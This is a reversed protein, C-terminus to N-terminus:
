KEVNQPNKSYYQTFNKRNKGQIYEGATIPPYKELGEPFGLESPDIVADPDPDLFVVLSHRENGSTNIVRHFNSSLSENSWRNLLDGINCVITGEVPLAAVWEGARNKVQLGGNHDQLLLTLVGFDTHPSSGFRLENEDSASSVPYYVLQGRALPSTYRSEFFDRDVGLGIAIASLLLQGVVRAADYYPLLHQRLSPFDADPWINDTVLSESENKLRPHWSEPGWFFIEKLDHTASGELRAQGVAMWGRQGKNVACQAKVQSPLRFYDRMVASATDITSQPIGHGKIYFFGIRQCAAVIENAVSEIAGEVGSMLPAIDIIPIERESIVRAAHYSPNITNGQSVCCRTLYENLPLGSHPPM